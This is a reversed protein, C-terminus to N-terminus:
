QLASQTLKVACYNNGGCGNSLAAGLVMVSENTGTPPAPLTLSQVTKNPNIAFSYGYLDFTRNDKQGNCMDRYPMSLAISEGNFGLPNYWDSFSQTLPTTTGDTYTVTLTQTVAGSDTVNVAAALITLTSYEGSPLPITTNWWVDNNGSPGINFTTGNWTVNGNLLNGSYANGDGDLGGNCPFTQGDNYIGTLNFNSTDNVLTSNSGTYETSFYISEAQATTSDNNDAAIGSTGGSYTNTPYTTATPTTGASTLQTDINWMTVANSGSNAGPEGMGVFLRDNAVGDYFETLPSCVGNANRPNVNTNNSMVPTTGMVGTNPNFGLAFLSQRGTHGTGATTGCSYLTSAPHTGYAPGYTFYNNDFAGYFLYPDANTSATGLIATSASASALSTSVQTVSTNGNKDNSSFLYIFKNLVDILPGPGISTNGSGFRVGTVYQFNPPTASANVIYNYIDESDSIYVESNVPDYVPGSINGTAASTNVTTCFDVSPSTTTSFINKIHYLLGNDAGVYAGDSGYDVYIDSHTNTSPTATCGNATTNTYSLAIDCASGAPTCAGNSFTGSPVVAATAAGGQGAVWITVHLYATPTTGPRNEIWAVRTGDLSLVPSLPSPGSGIDYAFMFTPATTTCFGTGAGTSYLNDLAVLNAQSSAPTADITFVAFDKSCSPSSYNATYIAPTEGVALGANPGLSVAWDAKSNKNKGLRIPDIPLPRDPGFLELDGTAGGSDNGSTADFSLGNSSAQRSRANQERIYRLLASSVFRPDNRLKWMDEPSGNRTFIVHRNSWDQPGGFATTSTAPAPNADQALAIGTAILMTAICCVVGRGFRLTRGM